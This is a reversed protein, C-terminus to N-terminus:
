AKPIEVAVVVERAEGMGEDDDSLDMGLFAEQLKLLEAGSELKHQVSYTETLEPILKKETPYDFDPEMWARHHPLVEMDTAKAFNRVNLLLLCLRLMLNYEKKTTVRIPEKNNHKSFTRGLDAFTNEVMSRFSGFTANFTAEEPHLPQMRKKRIPFAFNRAELGEDKELVAGIHQTYGGDVAICDMEAIKKGIGMEVLMTGDNNDKCAASKSTFLVLGNIDIGVQTRLGAKKLKYSYMQAQGEGYTARTDHGDVMVTIHKFHAPNRWNASRIRIEPTSFMTGLCRMIEKEFIKREGKLFTSYIAHFSSRPLFQSMSDMTEGSVFFYLFAIGKELAKYPGPFYYLPWITSLFFFTAIAGLRRMVLEKMEQVRQIPKLETRHFKKTKPYLPWPKDLFAWEEEVLQAVRKALKRPMTSTTAM